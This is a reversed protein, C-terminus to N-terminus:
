ILRVRLGKDKVDEYVAGQLAIVVLTYCGVTVKFACVSRPRVVSSSVKSRYSKERRKRLTSLVSSGNVATVASIVM